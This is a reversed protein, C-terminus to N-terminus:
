DIIYGVRHVTRIGDPGSLDLKKRLSSVYVDIRRDLPDREGPGVVYSYLEDRSMVKGKNRALCAITRFESESLDAPVGEPSLVAHREPDVTWRDVTICAVMRRAALSGRIERIRAMRRKVRAVLERTDFPKTVYDDAGVEIGIVRDLPDSKGSVIMIGIDGRPAIKRVLEMGDTGKLRLDVLALIVNHRALAEEAADITTASLFPIGADELAMGVLEHMAEDDDVLLVYEGTALDTDDM